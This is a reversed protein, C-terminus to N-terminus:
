AKADHAEYIVGDTPTTVNRLPGGETLRYHERMHHAHAGKLAAGRDAYGDNRVPCLACAWYAGQPGRARVADPHAATPKRGRPRAAPRDLPGAPATM